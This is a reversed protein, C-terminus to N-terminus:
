VGHGKVWVFGRPTTNWHGDVWVRGRRPKVYHPRLHVYRGHRWRWSDGVWVASPYPPAARVVSDTTGTEENVVQSPAACSMSLTLVM